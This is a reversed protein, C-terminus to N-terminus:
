RTRRLLELGRRGDFGSAAAADDDGATVTDGVLTLVLLVVQLERVPQM